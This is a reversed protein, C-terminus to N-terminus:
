QIKLIKGHQMEGVREFRNRDYRNLVLAQVIFSQLYRRSLMLAWRNKYLIVFYDINPYYRQHAVHEGDSIFLGGLRGV